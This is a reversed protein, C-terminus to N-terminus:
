HYSNNTTRTTKKKFLRIAFATAVSLTALKDLPGLQALTRCPARLCSPHRQRHPLGRSSAKVSISPTCFSTNKMPAVLQGSMRSGAMISQRVLLWSIVGCNNQEVDLVMLNGFCEASSCPNRECGLHVVALWRGGKPKGVWLCLAAGLRIHSDTREIEGTTLINLAADSSVHGEDVCSPHPLM